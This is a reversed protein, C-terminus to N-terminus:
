EITLNNSYATALVPEKVYPAWEFIWDVLSNWNNEM